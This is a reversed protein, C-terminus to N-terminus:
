YYFRKFTQSKIIKLDFGTFFNFHISLYYKLPLTAWVQKVQQIHFPLLKRQGEGKIKATSPLLIAERDCTYVLRTSVSCNGRHTQNHVPISSRLHRHLHHGAHQRSRPGKPNMWHKTSASFPVRHKTLTWSDEEQKIWECHTVKSYPLSSNIGNTNV